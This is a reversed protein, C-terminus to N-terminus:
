FFFSLPKNIQLVLIFQIDQGYKTHQLHDFAKTIGIQWYVFHFSINIVKNVMSQDFQGLANNLIKQDGQKLSRNICSFIDIRSYNMVDCIKGANDRVVEKITSM